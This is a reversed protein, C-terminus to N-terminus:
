DKITNAMLRAAEILERRMDSNEITSFVRQLELSQEFRLAEANKPEFAAGADAFGADASGGAGEAWQASSKNRPAMM